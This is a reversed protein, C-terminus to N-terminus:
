ITSNKELTSALPDEGKPIGFGTYLGKKLHDYVPINKYDIEKIERPKPTVIPAGLGFEEVYNPVFGQAKGEIIKDRFGQLTPNNYLLQQREKFPVKEGNKTIAGEEFKYSGKFEPSSNLVETFRKNQEATGQYHPSDLLEAEKSRRTKYKKSWKNLEEASRKWNQNTVEKWWPKM